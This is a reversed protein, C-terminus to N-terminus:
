DSPVPWQWTYDSFNPPYGNHTEPWNIGKITMGSNVPVTPGVWDRTGGCWYQNGRTGSFNDGNFANIVISHFTWCGWGYPFNDSSFVRVQGCFSQPNTGTDYKGQLEVYDSFHGNSISHGTDPMGEWVCNGGGGIISAHTGRTLTYGAFGFGIAVIVALLINFPRRWLLRAKGLWGRSKQSAKSANKKVLSKNTKPM